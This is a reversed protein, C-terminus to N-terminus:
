HTLNYFLFKCSIPLRFHWLTPAILCCSDVSPLKGKGDEGCNASLLCEEFQLSEAANNMREELERILRESKGELFLCAADGAVAVVDPKAQAIHIAEHSARRIRGLAVQLAEAEAVTHAGLLEHIAHDSAVFSLGNALEFGKQSLTRAQRIGTVCLAAENVLQLALRPQVTNPAM